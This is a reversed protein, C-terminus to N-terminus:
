FSVLLVVTCEKELHSTCRLSYPREVVIQVPNRKCEHAVVHRQLSEPGYMLPRQQPQLLEHPLVVKDDLVDRSASASLLVAFTHETPRTDPSSVMNLSCDALPM